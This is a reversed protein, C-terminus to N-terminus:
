GTPGQASRRLTGGNPVRCNKALHGRKGCNTCVIEPRQNGKPARCDRAIHGLKGCNYCGDSNGGSIALPVQQQGQQIRSYPNQPKRSGDWTHKNGQFNTQPRGRQMNRQQGQFNRQFNRQQPRQMTQQSQNQQSDKELSTALGVMGEFSQNLHGIM